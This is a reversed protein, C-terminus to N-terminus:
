PGQQPTERSGHGIHEQNRGVRQMRALSVLVERRFRLRRSAEANLVRAQVV